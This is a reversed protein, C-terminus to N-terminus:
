AQMTEWYLKRFHKRLLQCEENSMGAAHKAHLIPRTVKDFHRRSTTKRALTRIAEDQQEQSLSFIQHPLSM